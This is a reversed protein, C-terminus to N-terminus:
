RGYRSALTTWIDRPTACNRVERRVNANMSSLLAIKAEDDQVIQPTIIGREYIYSRNYLSLIPIMFMKWDEYNVAGRLIADQPFGFYTYLPQRTNSM